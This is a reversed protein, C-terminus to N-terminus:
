LVLDPDPIERRVVPTSVRSWLSARQRVRCAGESLGRGDETAGLTPNRRIGDRIWPTARLQWQRCRATRVSFCYSGSGAAYQVRRFGSTM